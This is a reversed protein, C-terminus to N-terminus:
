AVLLIAELVPPDFITQLAILVNFNKMELTSPLFIGQVAAFVLTGTAVGEKGETTCPKLLVSAGRSSGAM